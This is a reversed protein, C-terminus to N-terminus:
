DLFRMLSTAKKDCEEWEKQLDSDATIGGGTYFEIQNDCIKACRLNVFHKTQMPNQEGLYGCYYERNHKEALAIVKLANNKPYGGIAPTPHLKNLLKKIGDAEYNFTIQQKLHLLNGANVTKVKDLKYVVKLEDLADTIFQSVIQHEMLEKNSWPINKDTKTGALAITEFNEAKQQLIIEPSAGLWLGCEPHFFLYCFANPHQKFIKQAYNLIDFSKETKYVTKKSLIAKQIEGKQIATKITEFGSQYEVLSTSKNLSKGLLSITKKSDNYVNHANSFDSFSSYHQKIEKQINFSPFQKTNFPVFSFGTKSKLDNKGAIFYVRESGPWQYLCFGTNKQQHEAILSPFISM